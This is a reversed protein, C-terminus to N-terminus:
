KIGARALDSRTIHGPSGWDTALWLVPGSKLDTAITQRLHRLQRSLSARSAPSRDSMHNWAVHAYDQNALALQLYDKHSTDIRRIRLDAFESASAVEVLLLAADASGTLRHGPLTPTEGSEQIVPLAGTEGAFRFVVGEADAVRGTENRSRNSVVRVIPERELVEITVRQPLSREIRIDRINPYRELLDARLSVFPITALNAGNTLGFSYTIVDPHIRKGSTVVVDIDRDQIRFQERWIGALADYGLYLGTGLLGLLALALTGFVALRPGTGDTTRTKRNIM